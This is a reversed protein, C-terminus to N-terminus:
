PNENPTIRSKRSYITLQIDYTSKLYRALGNYADSRKRNRPCISLLEQLSITLEKNDDLSELKSSLAKVDREFERGITPTQEVIPESVEQTEVPQTSTTEQRGIPKMTRGFLFNLCQILMRYHIM